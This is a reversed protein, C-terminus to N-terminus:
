PHNRGTLVLRQLVLAFALMFLTAFVSDSLFHRGTAIRQALTGIAITFAAITWLRRAFVPANRRMGPAIALLALALVVAAAGEGSVFSCNDLCQDSPVLAPTFQAAGGFEAVEAPRARGWHAKLIVNVLLVPGALYLLAIFTWVRGGVSLLTRGTLGTLSGALALLFMGVSGAWVTQRWLEAPAFAALPFGKGPQYFLASAALDIGPFLSFIAAAGLIALALTLAATRPAPARM